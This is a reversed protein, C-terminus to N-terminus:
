IGNNKINRYPSERDRNRMQIEKGSVHPYNPYFHKMVRDQEEKPTIPATNGNLPPRFFRIMAGEVANLENVPVRIYFM